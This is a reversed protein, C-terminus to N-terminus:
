KTCLLFNNPLQNNYLINPDLQDFFQLSDSTLYIEDMTGFEEYLILNKFFPISAGEAVYNKNVLDFNKLFFIM